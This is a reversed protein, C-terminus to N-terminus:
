TSFRKPREVNSYIYIRHQWNGQLDKVLFLSFEDFIYAYEPNNYIFYIEKNSSTNLIRQIVKKLTDPILPNYLYFINYNGYNNFELADINFIEIKDIRLKCFNNKAISVLKHAIELGDIKKFPFKNMCLLAAGKSSGIDIISDKNNINFLKFVKKLYPTNSHTCRKVLVPNLGNEEPPIETVFDLGQLYTKLYFNKMYIRDKLNKIKFAFFSILNKFYAIKM